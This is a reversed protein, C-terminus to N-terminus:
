EGGCRYGVGLVSAKARFRVSQSGAPYRRSLPPTQAYYVPNIKFVIQPLFLFFAHRNHTNSKKYKQLQFKTVILLFSFNVRLSFFRGLSKVYESSIEMKLM